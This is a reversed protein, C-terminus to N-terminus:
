HNAALHERLLDRGFDGDFDRWVSHVHNGDGQTNDFEILFTPGQVRFYHQDGRATGGAWAFTINEVGAARVKATREGAIDDAMLSTFAGVEDMLLARQAATMAMAPIGTQSLPEVESMNETLIDRPAETDFIARSRQAADLAMVLTRAADEQTGLVRRGAQPGDRVEAPNTGAFSPSAAIAGDVMTFHLSIHHGEVRWGWADVASPTGFVSFRYADPDRALRGGGEITRLLGELEIIGTYTLYGRQSLGARLLDHALQRQPDSMAGLPLGMRPFNEDPIFHWRVREDADFVFTAQSRQEPTLNELFAAAASVIAASARQASIVSGVAFATLLVLFVAIRRWALRSM